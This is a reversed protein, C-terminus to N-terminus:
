LVEDHDIGHRTLFAKIPALAKTVEAETIDERRAAQIQDWTSFSILEIARQAARVPKPWSSWGDSNSNAWDALRGVVDVVRHRNPQHQFRDYAEQIEYENMFNSM